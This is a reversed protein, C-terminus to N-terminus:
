KFQGGSVGTKPHNIAFHLANQHLVRHLIGSFVTRKPALHLTYGKLPNKLCSAEKRKRYYNYKKK